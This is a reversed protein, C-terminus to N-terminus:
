RGPHDARRHESTPHESMEAAIHKQVAEEVKAALKEDKLGQAKAEIVAQKIIKVAEDTTAGKKILAAISPNVLSVEQKTIVGSSLLMEAVKDAPGLAKAAASPHDASPHEAFACITFGAVLLMTLLVKKM